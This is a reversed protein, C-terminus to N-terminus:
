APGTLQLPNNPSAVGQRRPTRRCGPRRGRGPCRDVIDGLGRGAAERGPLYGEGWSAPQRVSLQRGEVRRDKPEPRPRCGLHLRRTAVPTPAGAAILEQMVERPVRAERRWETVLRFQEGVWEVEFRHGTLVHADLASMEESSGAPDLRNMACTRCRDGRFEAALLGNSLLDHEAADLADHLTAGTGLALIDDRSLLSAVRAYGGRAPERDCNLLTGARIADELAPFLRVDDV